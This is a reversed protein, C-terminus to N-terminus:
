PRRYRDGLHSHSMTLLNKPVLLASTTTQKMNEVKVAHHHNPYFLLQLHICVSNMKKRSKSWSQNGRTSSLSIVSPLNRFACPLHKLYRTDLRRRAAELRDHLLVKAAGRLQTLERAASDLNKENLYDEARALVSLVDDEPVLGQRKFRIVSLAKSALYSLVGANEGSVLAVQSVKPAVENTFWTTLDTFPEVGVDPIDTSELSDLVVPRPPLICIIRLKKHFPKRM